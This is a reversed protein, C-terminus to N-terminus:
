VFPQVFIIDYHLPFIVCFPHPCLIDEYTNKCKFPQKAHSSLYSPVLEFTITSSMPPPVEWIPGFIYSMIYAFGGLEIKLKSQFFFISWFIQATGLGVGRQGFKPCM